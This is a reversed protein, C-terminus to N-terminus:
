SAATGQTVDVFITGDEINMPYIAVGYDPVHLARGTRVNYRWGHARCTVIHGKLKSGGLSMGQHLCADQTAYVTGEVNFLAVKTGDVSVATCAGTPLKDLRAVEIFEGM